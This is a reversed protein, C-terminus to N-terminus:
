TQIQSNEDSREFNPQVLCICAQEQERKEIAMYRKFLSARIQDQVDFIEFRNWLDKSNQSNISAQLDKKEANAAIFKRYKNEIMLTLGFGHM